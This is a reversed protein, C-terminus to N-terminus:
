RRTSKLYIRRVNDSAMANGALDKVGTTITAKYETLPELNSAPDFSATKSDQSLQVSGPINTIGKEIKFTSISVTSRSMAESFTATIPQIM